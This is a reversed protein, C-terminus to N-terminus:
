SIEDAIAEVRPGRIVKTIERAAVDRLEEDLLKIASVYDSAVVNHVTSGNVEIAFYFVQNRPIM